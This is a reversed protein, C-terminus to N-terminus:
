LGRRCGHSETVVGGIRTTTRAVTVKVKTVQASALVSGYLRSLLPLGYMM